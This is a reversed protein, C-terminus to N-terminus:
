TERQDSNARAGSNQRSRRSYRKRVEEMKERKERALRAEDEKSLIDSKLLSAKQQKSLSSARTRGSAQSPVNSRVSRTELNPDMPPRNSQAVPLKALPVPQEKKPQPRQGRHIVSYGPGDYVVPPDQELEEKTEEVTQQM